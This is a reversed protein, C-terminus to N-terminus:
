EENRQYEKEELVRLYEQDAKLLKEDKYVWSKKCEALSREFAKGWRGEKSALRHVGGWKKTRKLGVM